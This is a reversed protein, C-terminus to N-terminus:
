QVTGRVLVGRAEMRAVFEPTACECPEFKGAVLVLGEGPRQGCGSKTCKQEPRLVHTQVSMAAAKAAQRRFNKSLHKHFGPPNKWDGASHSERVEAVYDIWNAGKSVLNVEITELLDVSPAKGTKKNYIYIFEDRPTEFELRPDDDDSKSAIPNATESPESQEQVETAVPDQTKGEQSSSTIGERGEQLAPKEAPHHPIAAPLQSALRKRQRPKDNGSELEGIELLRTIVDHVVKEPMRVVRAISQADHPRGDERRLYGRPVGKSAVMHIAIMVGFHAPGDPHDVIAAFTDSSLDTPEPIWTM